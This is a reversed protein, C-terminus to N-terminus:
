SRTEYIQQKIKDIIELAYCADEGTVRPKSGTKICKAFDILEARLPEVMQIFVKEIINEQRYTPSYGTDLKCNTRRTITVTRHLLDMRIFSNRTHIDIDRVKDETVRSAELTALVGDNFEILAHAYDVFYENYATRGNAHLRKIGSRNLCNIVIDLDHILLDQVVDVDNIREDRPSFRRINVAIVEEHELLKEVELIVPNFREVHGVALVSQTEKFANCIEVAEKSDVGLPKEVLTHLGTKAAELALKHHTSSPSAIIVAEVSSFLENVTSFFKFSYHEAASTKVPDNDYVGILNFDNIESVLRVHNKGMNGFGIIGTKIQSM